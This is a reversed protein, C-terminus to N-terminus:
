ALCKKYGGKMNSNLHSAQICLSKCRGKENSNSITLQISGSDLEPHRPYTYQEAHEQSIANPAAHCTDVGCSSGEGLISNIRKRENLMRDEGKSLPLIAHEQSATDLAGKITMGHKVRFRNISISLFDNQIAGSDLEPHRSYIYQETQEQSVSDLVAQCSITMKSRLDSIWSILDKNNICFAPNGFRATQSHCPYIYQKAHEQTLAHLGAHCTDVGQFLVIKIKWESLLFPRFVAHVFPKVGGSPSLM